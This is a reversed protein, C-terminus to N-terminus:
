GRASAGARSSDSAGTRADRPTPTGASDPLSFRAEFLLSSAATSALLRGHWVLLGVNAIALLVSADIPTIMRPVAWGVGRGLGYFLNMNLAGSVSVAMFIGRFTPQLAAALALFPVALMLHHEHVSVGLTFFAQVTFAALSAHVALARSRHARWIGWACAAVVLVTGIPRPNPLGMEMWSSIALIRFVPQLYAGPFGFQPIMNYGREIWTAIWWLNAAYGALIDRRGQWGEFAVLMNPLAGVLIYPLVGAFLCVACTVGSTIARRVGGTHWAAIVFAPAILMGQPKTLLTLALLAGAWVPRDLHLCIIATLAPLMMLPDLYGLFEANLITAPNAWFALAIWQAHARSGTLRRVSAYLLMTLALGAVFGPLKVAVNLRWDSPYDPFLAAYATGVMAVEYLAAPPYDVTTYRGRFELLRREPPTGGIGYMGLVDDKGAHSWLKWVEVDETGSLPLAAVRLLTVTVLLVLSLRSVISTYSPLM